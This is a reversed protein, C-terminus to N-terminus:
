GATKLTDSKAAIGAMLENWSDVFSEAGEHQLEADLADVDIGAREFRALIEEANDDAPLLAGIEGHDAFDLLTAEPM